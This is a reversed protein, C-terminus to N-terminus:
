EGRPTEAKGRRFYYRVIRSLIFWAAGLTGKLTGGIKSKGIRPYYSVPVEVIRFGAIAGKLIMEVAWGYTAEELALAHLVDARCARFPGLDSVKVGYLLRILGAALRNGFSQHWPLAGPNRMESLRSGLTIDARGEVIPALVMPLESPRDSYDGDLFVVVDPNETNALGTLCARGYGRRAEQIVRAGMKQALDPTGDTSNNDVVIVETVLNSPLDGLVRGIAEAENHTPIIVSVRM